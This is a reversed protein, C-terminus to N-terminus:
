AAAIAERREARTSRKAITGGCNSTNVTTGASVAKLIDKM